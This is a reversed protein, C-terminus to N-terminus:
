NGTNCKMSKRSQVNRHLTLSPFCLIILPACLVPVARALMEFCSESQNVGGSWGEGGQM